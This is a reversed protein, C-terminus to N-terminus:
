KLDDPVEVEDGLRSAVYARMAAILPTPGTFLLADPDHTSALWADEGWAHGVGIRESEIIEGGQAWSRSPEWPGHYPGFSMSLIGYESDGEFQLRQHEGLAKAVAWDLAPGILDSTKILM